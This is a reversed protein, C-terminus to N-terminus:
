GGVEQAADQPEPTVEWPEVEGCALEDAYCETCLRTHGPADGDLPILCVRCIAGTAMEQGISM